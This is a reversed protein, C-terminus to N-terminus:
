VVTHTHTHTHTFINMECLVSLVPVCIERCQIHSFIHINVRVMDFMRDAEDMVVYTVRELSILKGANMCLIDIFRGPTCVVIDAGTKLETIQEKVSSGGYCCTGRLGLAKFFVKADSFIQSLLHVLLSFSPSFPTPNPPATSTPSPPTGSDTNHDELHHIHPRTYCAVWHISVGGDYLHRVVVGRISVVYYNVGRYLLFM